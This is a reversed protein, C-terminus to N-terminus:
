EANMRKDWDYARDTVHNEMRRIRNELSRFKDKLQSLGHKRSAYYSTNHTTDEQEPTKVPQKKIILALAIYILGTPFFFTIAFAIIFSIRIWAVSLNLTDAIGQCVGFLM